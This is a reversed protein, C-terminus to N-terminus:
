RALRELHSAIEPASFIRRKMDQAKDAAAQGDHTLSVYPQDDCFVFTSSEEHAVEPGSTARYHERYYMVTDRILYTQRDIFWAQLRGQITEGFDSRLMSLPIGHQGLYVWWIGGDTSQIDRVAIEIKPRAELPERVRDWLDGVPCAHGRAAACLLLLVLSTRM